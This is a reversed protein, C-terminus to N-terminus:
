GAHPLAQDWCSHHPFVIIFELNMRIPLVKEFKRWLDGGAQGLLFLELGLVLLLLQKTRDGFM